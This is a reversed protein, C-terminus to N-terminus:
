PGKLAHKEVISKTGPACPLRVVRQLCAKCWLVVLDKQMGLYRVTGGLNERGTAAM